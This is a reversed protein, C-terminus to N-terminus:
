KLTKFLASISQGDATTMTARYCGSGTPTKWNQIFQDGTTDFRFETQGATAFAEIADESGNTCSVKTAAFTAGIAATTKLETAGDFVEFKLPVTNGGKITNYTGNGDVPAYFGSRTLNKVTYSRTATATNGANDTATATLTHTGEATSYGTVTCDKLGSLADSASCTPAVPVTRTYYRTGEVPGGAFAVDVPNTRDILASVTRTTTNGAKDAVTKSASTAVVASGNRTSEASVTLSFSADAEDALGSGADSATFTQSLATTRWTTDTINGPTVTPGQTDIVVRYSRTATSQNGANDTATATMTHSGDDTSYGTVTCDKIGSLADSATCTPAPPVTNYYLTGAVPGGVFAVDVPNTYDILASVTRTTANLAVDTVAKSMSTAVVGSSDKTSEASATLSFNADGSSALGSGTDSAEFEQSLPTNRWTTDVVDAPTVTPAQTDVNVTVTKFTETDKMEVNGALDVSWYTITHMGESLTATFQAGYTQKAGSDITYYTAAIGSGSDSATFAVPIGSTVYWGSDPSIPNIVETNPATRDIQFTLPASAVEVHGAEDVSWFSVSHEGEAGVSFADEYTHTSGGDVRYYTAAVGSLNDSGTLTVEVASGYWGNALSGAVGGTTSPPTRDIQIGTVTTTVNNGAVDECSTTATLNNGEGEVVTDAPQAGSVGSGGADTCTWDVTVDGTHWGAAFSGSLEPATTDINIGSVTASGSNGAADTATGTASRDTGQVLTTNGTVHAVGSLGVQDVASFTVEVDDKYWHATNKVGSVSATVEPATKDISVLATDIASKGANDVATGVVQQGAGEGSTTVPNTCSAVGSGSDTCTFVVRVDQNTWVGDTYNAPASFSHSIGPAFKDIKVTATKEAEVNGAADTSFFTITHTGETTISLSRGSQVPGNDVQYSTSAVTSLNDTPSLVVDVDGDAWGDSTHSIGTIPATRDIKVAPSSTATTSLGAGNTVTQSSTLNTGEGTITTNAPATPIGSEPDAATWRVTVDGLYWGNTGNPQTTAAGSLTPASTDGAPATSTASAVNGARDTASGTVTVGPQVTKSNTTSGDALCSAIGSPADSCTFAVTTTGDANKTQVPTITPDTRDLKVIVSGGASQANGLADKAGTATKTVGDVSTNATVGDTAPSPQAAQGGTMGVGADSASWAISVNTKNWGAANPAPTLESSVVPGTNDLAYSAQTSDGGGTCAGQPNFDKSAAVTFSQLGNGVPATTTFTWRTSGTSSIRTGNFSSPLGSICKTGSATNVTLTLAAGAKAYLTGLVSLTDTGGSFSASVASVASAASAAPANM